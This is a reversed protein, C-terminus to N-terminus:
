NGALIVKRFTLSVRRERQIVKGQFQDTKRVAISHTWKYRADDKLIILSKPELLISLKKNTSNNTFDMVCASGLSLSIITDTFCPVCDIHKSIGQGSQYENVIVQDPLESMFNYNHIKYAIDSAWDPLGGIQMSSEIARAKYNYKYGYHQVRRKLDSLWPKSDIQKILLNHEQQTIFNPVYKLGNIGAIEVVTIDPEKKSPHSFLDLELQQFNQKATQKLLFDYRERLILEPQHKLNRKDAVEVVSCNGEKECFQPFLELQKYGQTSTM